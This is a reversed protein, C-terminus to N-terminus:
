KTKSQWKIIKLIHSKKSGAQKKLQKSDRKVFPFTVIKIFAIVVFISKFFNLLLPLLLWSFHSSCVFSVAFNLMFFTASTRGLCIERQDEGFSRWAFLEVSRRPLDMSRSYIGVWTQIYPSCRSPSKFGGESVLNFWQHPWSSSRGEGRDVGGEALVWGWSWFYM